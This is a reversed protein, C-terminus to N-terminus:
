VGSLRVDGQSVQWGLGLGREGVGGWGGGGRYRSGRCGDNVSGGVGGGPAM